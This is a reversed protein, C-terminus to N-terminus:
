GLFNLKFSGQRDIQILPRLAPKLELTVLLMASLSINPRIAVDTPMLEVAILRFPRHFLYLYLLSYNSLSGKFETAIFKLDNIAFLLKM